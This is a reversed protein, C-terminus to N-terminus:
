RKKKEGGLDELINISDNISDISYISCRIKEKRDKRVYSVM